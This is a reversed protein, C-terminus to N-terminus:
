AKKKLSEADFWNTHVVQNSSNYVEIYYKTNGLNPELVVGYYGNEAPYSSSEINVNDGSILKEIEESSVNSSQAPAQASQPAEGTQPDFIPPHFALGGVRNKDKPKKNEEEIIRKLQSRYPQMFGVLNEYIKIKKDNLELVYQLLREDSISENTRKEEDDRLHDFVRKGVKTLKYFKQNGIKTSEIIHKNRSLWSSSPRRGIEEDEQLKNFFEKLEQETVRSKDGSGVFKVIKNRLVSEPNIFIAPYQETWPRKIKALRENLRDGINM